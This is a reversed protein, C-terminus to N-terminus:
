LAFVRVSFLIASGVLIASRHFMGALLSLKRDSARSVNPRPSSLSPRGASGALAVVSSKWFTWSSM